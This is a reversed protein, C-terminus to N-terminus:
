EVKEIVACAVRAGAGGIPQSMHDDPGEHIVLASGDEDILNARGEAESLTVRDSYLEANVTGDEAAYINPLDGSDPGEPNLLGHPKKEDPGILEATISGEPVQLHQVHSGSKKYGEDSCDGTEHFHIAHWGPKLGTATVRIVVGEPGESLDATGADASEQTKFTATALPAEALAPAAAGLALISVAALPALRRLTRIPTM